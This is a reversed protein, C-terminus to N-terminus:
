SVYTQQGQNGQKNKILLFYCFLRVTIIIMLSAM